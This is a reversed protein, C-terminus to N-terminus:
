QEAGALEKRRFQHIVTTVVGWVVAGSPVSHRPSMAFDDHNVWAVIDNQKPTLARDILALDGDFIGQDSWANGAVRMTYTATGHHILLQNFDLNQLSADAAPNPFGMHVSVNEPQSYYM